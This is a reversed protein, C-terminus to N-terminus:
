QALGSTYLTEDVRSRFSIYPWRKDAYRQAASFLIRRASESEVVFAPDEMRDGDVIARIWISEEGSSDSGTEFKLECIWAPLAPKAWQEIRKGVRLADSDAFRDPHAIEIIQALAGLAAEVRREIPKRDTCAAVFTTVSAHLRQQEDKSLFEFDERDYGEVAQPTLWSESKTALEKIEASDWKKANLDVQMLQFQRYVIGLNDLFEWLAM